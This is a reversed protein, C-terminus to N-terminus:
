GGIEKLLRAADKKVNADDAPRVPDLPAGAIYKLEAVAEPKRGTVNYAEALYLRNLLSDPAVCKAKELLDVGRKKDGIFAWAPAEMLVKGHSRLAGARDYSPDKAAVEGFAKLARKVLGLATMGGVIDAKQLFAMSRWYLAHTDGPRANLARDSADVSQNFYALRKTRDAEEEGLLYYARGLQTLAGADSGGEAEACSAKVSLEAALRAYEAPKQARDLAATLESLGAGHALGAHVAALLMVAVVAIVRAAGM